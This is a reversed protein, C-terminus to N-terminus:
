VLSMRTFFQWESYIQIYLWQWQQLYRHYIYQLRFFSYLCDVRYVLCCVFCGSRDNVILSGGGGIFHCSIFCSFLCLGSRQVLFSSGEIPQNIHYVGAWVGYLYRQVAWFSFFLFSVGAPQFWCWSVFCTHICEYHWTMDLLDIDWKLFVLLSLYYLCTFTLRFTNRSAFLIHHHHHHHHTTFWTWSMLFIYETPLGYLSQSQVLARFWTLCSDFTEWNLSPLRGTWSHPSIMRCAFLGPDWNKLGEDNRRRM